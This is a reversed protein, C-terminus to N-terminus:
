WIVDVVFQLQTFFATIEEDQIQEPFQSLREREDDTLFQVPMRTGSQTHWLRDTKACTFLLYLIPNIQCTNRALLWPAM